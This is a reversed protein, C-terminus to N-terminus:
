SRQPTCTLPYVVETSPRSAKIHYLPALCPKFLGNRGAVSLAQTCCTASCRTPYEAPLFTNTQVSQLLLTVSRRQNYDDHQFQTIQMLAPDPRDCNLTLVLDLPPFAIEAYTFIKGTNVDIRGSIGFQRSALSRLDLLALYVDIGPPLNRDNRNLLYRTLGIHTEAFGPGCASCFMVLIQKLVRLPRISANFQVIDGASTARCPGMAAAVMEVYAKGYWSGTESNCKKCLSYRGAGRQSEEGRPNELAELLNGKMMRELEAHLVPKDNFAARPPVHEFSLPRSELCLCCKGIEGRQGRAM